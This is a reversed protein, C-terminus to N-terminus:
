TKDRSARLWVRYGTLRPSQKPLAYVNPAIVPLDAAAAFHRREAWVNFM